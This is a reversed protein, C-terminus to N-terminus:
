DELEAARAAVRVLLKESGNRKLSAEGGVSELGMQRKARAPM